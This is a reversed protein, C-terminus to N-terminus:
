RARRVRPTSRAASVETPVSAGASLLSNEPLAGNQAAPTRRSGRRLLSFMVFSLRSGVFPWHFRNTKDCQTQRLAPSRQKRLRCNAQMGRDGAAIERAYATLAACAHPFAQRTAPKVRQGM